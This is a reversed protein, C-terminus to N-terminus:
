FDKRNIVTASEDGLEKHDHWVDLDLSHSVYFETVFNSIQNQGQIVVGTVIIEYGFDAQFYFWSQSSIM